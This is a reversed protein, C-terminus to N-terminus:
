KGFIKQFFGKAADVAKSAYGGASASTKETPLPTRPTGAPAAPTKGAAAVDTVPSPDGSGVVTPLPTAPAISFDTTTAVRPTVVSNEYDKPLNIYDNETLGLQEPTANVIKEYKGDAGAKYFFGKSGRAYSGAPVGTQSRVTNLDVDKYVGAKASKFNMGTKQSDATLQNTKFSGPNAPDPVMINAASFSDSGLKFVQKDGEKRPKGYVQLGGYIGNTESYGNIAGAKGFKVDTVEGKVNTTIYAAYGPIPKGPTATAMNAKVDVLDNFDQLAQDYEILYSSANEGSAQMQDISTTLRNIKGRAIAINADVLKTPNKALLMNAKLKDDSADDNLNSINNSDKIGSKSKSSKYTELKVLINSRNAESMGPASYLKQAEGILLDYDGPSLKGDAELRSELISLQDILVGYQNGSKRLKPNLFSVDFQTM